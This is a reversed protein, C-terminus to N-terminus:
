PVWEEGYEGDAGVLRWRIAARPARQHAVVALAGTMRAVECLAQREGPPCGGVGLKCQVLVARLSPPTDYYDGELCSIVLRDGRFTLGVLDAAGNSKAARIVWYGAKELERKCRYELKRGRAYNTAM